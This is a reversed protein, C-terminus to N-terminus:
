GAPVLPNKSFLFQQIDPNGRRWMVNDLYYHHINLAMLFCFVFLYNGFLSRDYPVISDLLRPIGDFLLYGLLIGFAVFLGLRRWVNDPILYDLTSRAGSKGGGNSADAANLQYRWVVTLYQLSHFSTILLYVVPNIGAFLLWIYLTVLYAILGNWPLAASNRWAQVLMVLVAVTGILAIALVLNSVLEPVALTTVAIDWGPTLRSISYNAALWSLLWCAYANLRLLSKASESFPLKKQISDVILIGYGQKVYHWGTLFVFLNQVYGLLQTSRTQVAIAISVAFFASLGIPVVLGAFIYRIRLPPGYSPGFAKAWFNRYFMQYSHAFHPQNILLMLIMALAGAESSFFGDPLLIAIPALVFLSGGGLYLFDTLPGFLYGPQPAASVKSSVTQVTSEPEVAYAM